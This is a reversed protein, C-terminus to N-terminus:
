RDIIDIKNNIKNSLLLLVMKGPGVYLVFKTLFM